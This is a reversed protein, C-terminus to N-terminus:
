LASELRVAQGEALTHVGAVVVKDGRALGQVRVSNKGEYGEITVPVTRVTGDPQCLWVLPQDLPQYIATLPLVFATGDEAEASRFATVTMGLALGAPPEPISVRVRYTRSASDAMPAIERIYGRTEGDLAWFTLTMEQGVAAARIRNEPINIEAEPEGEQVITMATQGTSVIQGTEISINSIVGDSPAVLATYGLANHGTAAQAAASNYAALAADYSTQYQDLTAKAVADAAYLQRYRELNVAALDLQAKASAVQADGMNSQERVDKPDIRALVQGRSVRDGVNVLRELVQGSVQFALAQEYRGRVTGTYTVSEMGAGEGVTVTRVKPPLRTGEADGGCGAFALSLLALLLIAARRHLIDMSM